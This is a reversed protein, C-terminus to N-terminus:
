QLKPNVEMAATLPKGNTFAIDALADLYSQHLDLVAKIAKGQEASLAKDTGGTTLDNVVDVGSGATAGGQGFPSITYNAM